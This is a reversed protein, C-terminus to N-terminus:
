IPRNSNETLERIARVARALPFGMVNCYDGQIGKVLLAGKEQIGYAGAKDFPEGTGLYWEIAAADLTYFEVQTREVFCREGHPSLLAVGSYVTHTRGSLLRLMRVADARDAPKGLIEDGAAVVTDAGIVLAHPHMGYLRRAKRQALMRVGDGPATGPELTEDVDAPMVDFQEFVRGLLEIRRPSRSALIMKM